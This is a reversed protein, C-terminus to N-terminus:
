GRGSVASCCTAPSSTATCADGRAHAHALADLMTVLVARLAPWTWPRALESVLTGQALEMALTPSGAILQGGSAREAAGSVEDHDLAIVIGPHDLGAVAQVERRFSGKAEDSRAVAATLVKVAVPLDQARHRGRWVAGMGGRGIPHQLEFPGVDVM